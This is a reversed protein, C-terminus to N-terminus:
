SPNYFFRLRTIEKFIIKGNHIIILYFVWFLSRDSERNQAETLSIFTLGWNRKYM